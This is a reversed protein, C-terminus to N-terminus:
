ANVEVVRAFYLTTPVGNRNLVQFTGTDTHVVLPYDSILYGPAGDAARPEITGDAVVLFGDSRLIWLGKELQIQQTTNGPIERQTASFLGAAIM